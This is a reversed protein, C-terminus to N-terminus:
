PRRAPRGRSCPSRGHGPSRRTARWGPRSSWTPTPWETVPWCRAPVLGHQQGAAWVTDWVRAGQEMPVYLEWGLEGVYSIRSALVIVGGMEVERCTGFGFADHSLDGLTVPQLVDRARPGWVGIATWASAVDALAAGAPLHDAFWKKDSM